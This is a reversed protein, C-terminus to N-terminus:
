VYSVTSENSSTSNLRVFPSWSRSDRRSNTSNTTTTTTTTTTSREQGTVTDQNDTEEPPRLFQQLRGMWFPRELISSYDIVSRESLGPPLRNCSTEDIRIVVLCNDRERARRNEALELEYNCYSSTLFNNSYVAIIKFSKRVSEVMNECYPVAVQFDRYHICCKLHYKKELPHLLRTVVWDSDYSSFIIFAHYDFGSLLPVRSQQKYLFICKVLGLVLFLGVLLGSVISAYM